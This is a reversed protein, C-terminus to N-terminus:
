SATRPQSGAATGQSAITGYPGQERAECRRALERVPEQPGMLTLVDGMKLWTGGRPYLVEGDRRVLVVMAGEPLDVQRLPRGTLDPCALQMEIVEHEDELDGLLSSVSPYLLLYELEVAPSLSPNVTGVGLDKFDPARAANELRAVVHDLGFEGRAIRCAELSVDDDHLVAAMGQITEPELREWLERKTADGHVFALGLAAVAEERNPDRDVVVVDYGHGAVRRALLRALKGAGVVVYKRRAAAQAPLIRNFLLPSVTSTVIAVLIISANTADDISGLDLGIAAVAIILSLRSSLLAGAALSHRWPAILRFVLSSVFKLGYALVLLLPVLLLTRPSGLLSQVDFRAGVMVFFIPIFFAYGIVDLRHHLDSAKNDALLSLLSGGLFAGLIMEVGLNEALAIFALGIAFAGRVDLQTTAQALNGFWGLGPLHRRALRALRYSTGFAGFLLLVLLLEPTLGQTHLVVYVSVLLMTAFDAVVAAVLLAQGFATSTMEREKLVPVVLGLSTTSLILAMLWPDDAADLRRLGLAAALALVVTILFALGGISLPNSLRQRWSSAQRQPDPMVAGFDVELGSLFMLYAFGLLSLVELAPDENVLRLGSQGIIMGALIEGVVSPIRVRRIRATVLPAVFAAVVVVLLPVFSSEHEM